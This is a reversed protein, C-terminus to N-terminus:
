EVRFRSESRSGTLIPYPGAMTTRLHHSTWVVRLGPYEVCLAVLLSGITFTKGVQRAVSLTVGGVTSCYRDDEDRGLILQALGTQWEDYRIAMDALRGRIRPWGSRVIGTPYM